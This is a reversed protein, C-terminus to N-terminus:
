DNTGTTGNQKAKKEGSEMALLNEGFRERLGGKPWGATTKATFGSLLRSLSLDARAAQCQADIGRDGWLIYRRLAMADTARTKLPLRNKGGRVVVGLALGLQRAAQQIELSSNGNPYSIMEPMKGTMQQIADQGGQIQERAEALSYNTLIAHNKTHNGMSVLRHGAFERLEGPSFPRDLEGVPRLADKGFEKKLDREVEETKLRKYGAVTRRIEEETKGSKRGERYAADWWFAKGERVHDSSIFFVAPANFEEMVPLARLNNCYGDDFTLLIYKGSPQLGGLIQGPSVFSYGQEHFHGLFARFMEVTVGQQPDLAGSRVEEGSEFLSHFLFCLLAGKEKTLPLLASALMRHSSLLTKKLQTPLMM